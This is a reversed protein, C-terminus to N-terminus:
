AIEKASVTGVAVCYSRFDCEKCVTSPPPRTVDFQQAQVAAVVSDFHAVAGAVDAPRYDFTMLARARTEEATWYLSLRDPRRGRRQELIHAYICLQQYYTERVPDDDAPRRQAKFDLVELSGDDALVLDVAGTLIYGEKELSVDVETEVVRKMEAANNHFYNRVHRLAAEKADTGVPRVDAKALTAFNFDVLAADVLVLVGVLWERLPM